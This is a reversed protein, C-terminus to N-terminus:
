APRFRLRVKLFKEARDQVALDRRSSEKGSWRRNRKACRAGVRLVWHRDKARLGFSALEEGVAKARNQSLTCNVPHPGTGDAHGILVLDQPSLKRNAIYALIRALDDKGRSDVISSDTRFHITTEFPEHAGLRAFLQRYMSPLDFIPSLEEAAPPTVDLSVFGIREVVKQGATSGVFQLFRAIEPNASARPAYMYLRRSLPYTETRVTYLTPYYPHNVASILLGKSEKIYPLGIFGIGYPDRSVKGSLETSDEIREAAPSLKLPERGAHLVIQDFTEWTGSDQNRAYLHIPWSMQGGVEEWSLIQGAFIKGLQEITLRDIPNSKNIIVAIGDLGIVYESGFARAIDRQRLSSEEDSHMQRSANGIDASGEALAKFGTVTGHAAISVGVQGGDLEASVIVEDKATSKAEVHAAGRSVLYEKVLAPALEGGITNSGALRLVVKAERQPPPPTKPM